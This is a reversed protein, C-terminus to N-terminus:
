RGAGFRQRQSAKLSGKKKPEQPVVRAKRGGGDLDKKTCFWREPMPGAIKPVPREMKHILRSLKGVAGSNVGRSRLEDRRKKLRALSTSEPEFANVQNEM